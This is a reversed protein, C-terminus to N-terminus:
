YNTQNVSKQDPLAITCRNKTDVWEGVVGVPYNITMQYKCAPLDRIDVTKAMTGRDQVVVVALAAVMVILVVTVALLHERHFKGIKKLLLAKPARLMGKKEESTM